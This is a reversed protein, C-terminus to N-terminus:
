ARYGLRAKLKALVYRKAEDSTRLFKGAKDKITRAVEHFDCSLPQGPSNPLYIRGAM